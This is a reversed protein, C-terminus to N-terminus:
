FHELNVLVVGVNLSLLNCLILLIESDFQVAARENKLLGECFLALASNDRM